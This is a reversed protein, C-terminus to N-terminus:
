GATTFTIKQSWDANEVQGPFILLSREHNDTSKQQSCWSVRFNFWLNCFHRYTKRKICICLGRHHLCQKKWLGLLFSSLLRNLAPLAWDSKPGFLYFDSCDPSGRRFQATPQQPLNKSQNGNMTKLSGGQLAQFVNKFNAGRREESTFKSLVGSHNMQPQLSGSATEEWPILWGKSYKGTGQKHTAEFAVTTM